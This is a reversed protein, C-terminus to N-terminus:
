TRDAIDKAPLRVTIPHCFGFHTVDWQWGHSTWHSTDENPPLSQRPRSLQGLLDSGRDRDM